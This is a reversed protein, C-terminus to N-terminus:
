RQFNIKVDYDSDTWDPNIHMDLDADLTLPKTFKYARQTEPCYFSISVGSTEANLKFDKVNSDTFTFVEEGNGDTLIIKGDAAFTWNADWNADKWSGKIDGLDLAFASTIGVVALSLLVLLKKM